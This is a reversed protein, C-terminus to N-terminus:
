PKIDISEIRLPELEDTNSFDITSVIILKSSFHDLNMSSREDNGGQMKYIPLHFESNNKMMTKISPGVFLNVVFFVFFIFISRM